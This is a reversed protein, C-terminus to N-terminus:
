RSDSNKRNKLFEKFGVPKKSPKASNNNSAVEPTSAQNATAVEVTNKEVTNKHASNSSELNASTLNAQANQAVAIGGVLVVIIFLKKM